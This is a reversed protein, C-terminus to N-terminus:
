VFGRDKKIQEYAEQVKIFKEQASKQYEPGLDRVKDPHYKMAMKRYAKKIEENSSSPAIELIKFASTPDKFYMARLSSYDAQSIGLYAAIKEIVEVERQDVSGDSQAIGYLYYLLQLRMPHEMYYRIQECVERIPIEKDLIPKMIGILEAARAAGFQKTMFERIFNLESKLLRNDAKMVAASLILLASAFDGSQTHHRYQQYRQRERPDIRHQTTENTRDDAIAGLAFGIIGGIPGGMAWGLAGGIFKAFKM